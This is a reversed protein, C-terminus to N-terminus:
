VLKNNFFLYAANKYLIADLENATLGLRFLMDLEDSADWMPFDSGFLVNESGFARILRLATAPPLAYLSSSTDVMLRDHGVLFREGSDWDSWGGFHAAIVNLHPFDRMVNAIRAPQSFDHRIDGAHFLIPFRGEAQEYIKYVLPDDIRFQQVDPHLKIGIMGLGEVRDLEASIEDASMEQHLAAFAATKLSASSRVTEALFTNISQVQAPTTAVSCIVCHTVGAKKSAATLANFTGDHRMALDYFRGISSTAKEAIKDPYVHAHSDIIM